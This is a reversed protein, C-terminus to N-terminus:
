CKGLSSNSITGIKFVKQLLAALGLAIMALVIPLYIHRLDGSAFFLFPPVLLWEIWKNRNGFAFLKFSLITFFIYAFPFGIISQWAKTTGIWAKGGLLGPTLNDYVGGFYLSTLYSAVMVVVFLLINKIFHNM